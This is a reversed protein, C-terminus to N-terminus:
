DNRSEPGNLAARARAHILGIKSMPDYGETQKAIHALAEWMRTHEEMADILRYLDASRIESDGELTAAILRSYDHTYGDSM